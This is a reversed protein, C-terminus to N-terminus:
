EMSAAAYRQDRDHEAQESNFGHWWWTAHEPDLEPPPEYGSGTRRAIRGQVATARLTLLRAVKRCEATMARGGPVTSRRDNRLRWPRHLAQWEIVAQEMQEQTMGDGNCVSCVRWEADYLGNWGGAGGCMACESFALLPEADETPGSSATM